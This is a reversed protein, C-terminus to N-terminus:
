APAAPGGRFRKWDVGLKRMRARLTHPNIGLLMAAGRPGEIRGGTRSLAAVLHTSTAEDLTPFPADPRGPPLADPPAAARGPVHGLARELDLKRGNGLITAREVVAALERVNGPWDYSLLLEVDAQTLLVPSAGLRLGAKRAFHSALAAIDQPRERLPPLRIPFINIRYYLDERFLRDRVMGALDRHTAAVLRVDVTQPRQGGVREFSGDQLIRLLRVQAALSLEAVEDLFLTGGDAREFWGKRDSVAGTFSGREHGFLESDILESPIAGCNVRMVPGNRRSSGAHLARAIVEKGSGTEGLILVPADTPAVLEVREMVERLGTEAGILSASVDLPQTLARRDAEVAEELREVAHVLRDHSIAFSLPAMLAALTEEDVRGLSKGPPAVLVLVGLPGAPGVLPGVLCSAALGEPVLAELWPEGAGPRYREVQGALAFSVLKKAASERLPSRARKPPEVTSLAVVGVTELRAPDARLQRLLLMTASTRGALHTALARTLGPLDRAEAIARWTSLELLPPLPDSM